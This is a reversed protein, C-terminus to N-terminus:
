RRYQFRSGRRLKEPYLQICQHLVRGASRYRFIILTRSTRKTKRTEPGSRGPMVDRMVPIGGGGLTIVIVGADILARIAPEEVIELPEPSAVVRRFRRPGPAPEEVLTWGSLRRADAEARSYFPGIPKTPQTFGPDSRAVVVQALVTAVPRTVHRIALAGHLIESNLRLATEFYAPEARCCLSGITVL